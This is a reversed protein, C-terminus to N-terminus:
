DLLLYKYFDAALLDLPSLSFVKGNLDPVLCLHKSNKHIHANFMDNTGKNRLIFFKHEKHIIRFTLLIGFFLNFIVWLDVFWLDLCM